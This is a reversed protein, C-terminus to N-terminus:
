TVALHNLIYINSYYTNNIYLVYIIFEHEKEYEKGNYTIVFYQVYNGQAM